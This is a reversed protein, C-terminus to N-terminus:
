RKFRWSASFALDSIRFIMKLSITFMWRKFRNLNEYEM